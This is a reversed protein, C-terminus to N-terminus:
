AKVKKEYQQLQRAIQARSKNGSNAGLYKKVFLYSMKSEVYCYLPGGKKIQYNCDILFACGKCPSYATMVTKAPTDEPLMEILKGYNRDAKDATKFIKQCPPCRVQKGGKSIFPKKCDLCRRTRTGYIVSPQNAM